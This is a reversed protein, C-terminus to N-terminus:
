GSMCPEWIVLWHRSGDFRSAGFRRESRHLSQLLIKSGTDAQHLDRATGRCYKGFGLTYRGGIVGLARPSSCYYGLVQDRIRSVPELDVLDVM